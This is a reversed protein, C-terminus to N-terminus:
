FEQEVGLCHLVANIILNFLVPLNVDGQTVGQDVLISGSYFGNQHLLFVQADLVANVYECIRPGIRYHRMLALVRVRSISRYEKRLDLVVQYVTVGSVSHM